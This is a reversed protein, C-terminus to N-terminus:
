KSSESEMTSFSLSRLPVHQAPLPYRCNNRRLFFPKSGMRRRLYLAPYLRIAREMKGAMSTPTHSDLDRIFDSDPRVDSIYGPM